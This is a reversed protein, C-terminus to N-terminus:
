RSKTYQSNTVEFTKCPPETAVGTGFIRNFEANQSTNPYLVDGSSYVSVTSLTDKSKM